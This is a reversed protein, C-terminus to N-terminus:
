FGVMVAIPVAWKVIAPDDGVKIGNSWVQFGLYFSPGWEPGVRLYPNVFWGTTPDVDLDPDPSIIALGANVFACLNDNIAFYPNIGTNIYTGKDDGGMAATVRFKVGFSDTAYKLGLGLGIPLVADSAGWKPREADAAGAFHYSFGVDLSLPGFAGGFYLFFAGSDGAKIGARNAGDYILAINGFDFNLDIVALSAQLVDGVENGRPASMFPIGININLMDLPKIEMAAGNYQWGENFVYRSHLFAGMPIGNIEDGFFSSGWGEGCWIGPNIAIGDNAKQNFMWGVTGQHGDWLGDNFMGLILKFEPIPKWFAYADAFKTAGGDFDLRVYGGFQGELAEGSGDIRAPSFGGSSTVKSDEGTDGQFLNVWTNVTGGLEVAFAVGAVLALVVAIAILKKM